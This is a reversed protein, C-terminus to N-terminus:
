DEGDRHRLSETRDLVINAHHVVRTNDLRLEVARVYKTDALGTRIVFNRFIDSGSAQMVFPKPMRLILDPPGMQWESTFRPAAPLDGPQGEREGDRVWNALLRIQADSLRRNEAFDGYGTEPPWPPMYHRQTVAVVQSAHKHLDRYTLLAFPGIGGQHHCPACHEFVLPAVDKNFTVPPAADFRAPAAMLACAFLVLWLPRMCRHAISYQMSYSNPSLRTM